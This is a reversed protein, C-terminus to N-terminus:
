PFCGLQCDRVKIELLNLLRGVVKGPVGFSDALGLAVACPIRGGPHLVLEDCETKPAAEVICLDGAPPDVVVWDLAERHLFDEIAARRAPPAGITKPVAKM